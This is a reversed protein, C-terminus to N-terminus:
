LRRKAVPILGPELCPRYALEPEVKNQCVNLIVAVYRHLGGTM